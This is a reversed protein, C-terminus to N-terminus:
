RVIGQSIHILSLHQSAGRCRAASGAGAGAAAAKAAANAAAAAASYAHRRAALWALAGAATSALVAVIVLRRWDANSIDLGAPRLSYLADAHTIATAALLSHLLLLLYTAVGSSPAPAPTIALTATAPARAAGSPAPAAAAAAATEAAARRGVRRRPKPPVTEKHAKRSLLGLGALVLAPAVLALGRLMARPSEKSM